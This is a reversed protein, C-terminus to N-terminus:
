SEKLSPDFLKWRGGDEWRFDSTVDEGRGGDTRSLLMLGDM